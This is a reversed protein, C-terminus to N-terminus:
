RVFSGQRDLSTEMWATGEGASVAGTRAKLRAQGIEVGVIGAMDMEACDLQRQDPFALFTLLASQARGWVKTRGM